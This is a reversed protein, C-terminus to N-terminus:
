QNGSMTLQYPGPVLSVHAYTHLVYRHSLRLYYATHSLPVASALAGVEHKYQQDHEESHMMSM